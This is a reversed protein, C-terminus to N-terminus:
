SRRFRLLKENEASASMSPRSRSREATLSLFSEAIPSPTPKSSIASKALRIESGEASPVNRPPMSM